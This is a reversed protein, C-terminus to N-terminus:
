GHARPTLRAIIRPSRAGGMGYRTRMSTKTPMPAGADIEAQLTVRIAEDDATWREDVDDAGASGHTDDPTHPARASEDDQVAASVVEDAGTRLPSTRRLSAVPVPSTGGPLVDEDERDPTTRAHTRTPAVPRPDVVPAPVVVRLAAPTNGASAEELRRSPAVPQVPAPRVPATHVPAAPPTHVADMLATRDQVAATTDQAVAPTPQGETDGRPAPMGHWGAVLAPIAFAIFLDVGVMTVVPWLAAIVGGVSRQAAVANAGITGACAVGLGVWVVTPIDERVLRRWYIVGVGALLLGDTTFPLWPVMDPATPIPSPTTYEHFVLRAHWYSAVLAIGGVFVFAAALALAAVVVGIRRIYAATRGPAAPTSM